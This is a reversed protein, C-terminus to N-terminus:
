LIGAMDTNGLLADKDVEPLLTAMAEMTADLDAKLMEPRQADCFKRLEAEGKM